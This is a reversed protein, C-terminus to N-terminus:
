KYISYQDTPRQLKITIEQEPQNIDYDEGYTRFGPAIVQVRMKGYPVGDMNTKGDADTKLEIGGKNQHGKGDVPHLIVAANRVPKGNSDKLVVLKLSSYAKGGALAPVALLLSLLLVIASRM